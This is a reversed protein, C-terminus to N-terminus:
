HLLSMWFKPKETKAAKMYRKQLALILEIRTTQNIGGTGM